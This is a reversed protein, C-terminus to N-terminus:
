NVTEPPTPSSGKKLQETILPPAPTLDVNRRQKGPRAPPLEKEEADGLMHCLCDKEKHEKYTFIFSKTCMKNDSPRLATLHLELGSEQIERIVDWDQGPVKFSIVVQNFVSTQEPQNIKGFLTSGSVKGEKRNVLIFLPRVDPSLKFFSLLIVKSGHVCCSVNPHVDHLEMPGCEKSKSNTIVHNSFAADRFVLENPPPPWSSGSSPANSTFLECMLKVQQLGIV